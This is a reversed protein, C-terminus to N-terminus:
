PSPLNIRGERDLAMHFEKISDGIMAWLPSPTRGRTWVMVTAGSSDWMPSLSLGDFRDAIFKLSRFRINEGLSFVNCLLHEGDAAVTLVLSPVM